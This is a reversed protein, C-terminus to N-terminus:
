AYTSSRADRNREVTERRLTKLRNEIQRADEDLLTLDIHIEPILKDITKLIASAAYTDPIEPDVHLVLSAVDVNKIRGENLLAAALGTVVGSEFPSVGANKLKDGAHKTSGVGRVGADQDGQGNDIPIGFSSIVLSCKQKQSWSLISRALEMHLEAPITFESVCVMVRANERGCIRAPFQPKHASVISVSPFHASSIAAIERLKLNEVLYLGAIAASLGISPFTEILVNDQSPIEEFSYIEFEPANV